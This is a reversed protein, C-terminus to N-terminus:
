PGGRKLEALKQELHKGECDVCAQLRLPLERIAAGADVARLYAVFGVCAQDWSKGEVHLSRRMWHKAAGFVGYDLPDLDPSRAPLLIPEVRQQLAWAKVQLSKHQTARDHWVFRRSGRKNHLCHEKFVLELADRYEDGSLDTHVGGAPTPYQKLAPCGNYKSGTLPIVTPHATLSVAVLVKLRRRHDRNGVFTRQPHETVGSVHVHRM